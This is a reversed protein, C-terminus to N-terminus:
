SRVKLVSRLEETVQKTGPLHTPLNLLYFLSTVFRVLKEPFQDLSIFWQFVFTHLPRSLYTHRNSSIWHKLNSRLSPRRAFQSLNVLKWLLTKYTREVQELVESVRDTNKFCNTSIPKVPRIFVFFSYM